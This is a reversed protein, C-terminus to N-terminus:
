LETWYFFLEVIEGDPDIVSSLRNSRTEGIPILRPLQPISKASEAGDTRRDWQGGQLRPPQLTKDPHFKVSISALSYRSNRQELCYFFIAVKTANKKSVYIATVYVCHLKGSWWSFEPWPKKKLNIYLIAFFDSWTRSLLLSVTFM